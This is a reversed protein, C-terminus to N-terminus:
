PPRHAIRPRVHRQGDPSPGGPPIRSLGTPGYLLPTGDALNPVLSVLQSPKNKQVTPVKTAGGATAVFFLGEVAADPDATVNNEFLAYQIPM